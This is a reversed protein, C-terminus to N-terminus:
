RMMKMMQGGPFAGTSAKETSSNSNPSEGIKTQTIVEENIKIGELIETMTDSSIGVQISKGIVENKASLVEVYFTGNKEKIASNSVKINNQGTNTIVLVSVTMGPKIRKDQTDFAVKVSYSVVNQSITGAADIEVVKGSISLDDIADFTIIAKQGINIEAIDIENLNIKALQQNTILTGLSTGNSVTERKQVDFGSLLGDFPAYFYYDSLNQDADYLANERQKITLEQAKIDLEDSGAILNDLVGQKEQSSRANSLIQQKLSYISNQDSLLSTLYNGAQTSYSSLSNRYQTVRSFISLSENTRYNIWYDLVNIEDKIGEATKRTTEITQTLLNDVSGRDSSRTSFKYEEFNNDYTSQATEYSKESKEILDEIIGRNDYDMSAVLADNNEQHNIISVESQGIGTGYLTNNLETIVEPLTLFVEDIDSLADDYTKALSNESSAEDEKARVIANKAQLIDLSDPDRTLRELSLHASELNSKADRVSKQADTSDIQILLQGASVEKGNSAGVYVIEGSTKPKLGISNVASVQGTASITQVIIGKTATETIYSVSEIEKSSSQIIFFSAIILIVLSFLSSFKHKKFYNFIGKFGNLIKSM